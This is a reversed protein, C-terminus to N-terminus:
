NSPSDFLRDLGHQKTIVGTQLLSARQGRMNQKSNRNGFRRGSLRLSSFRRRHRVVAGDPRALSPNFHHRVTPNLHTSITEVDPSTETRRVNASGRPMLQQRGVGSSNEAVIAEAVARSDKPRRGESIADTSSGALINRSSPQQVTCGRITVNMSAEEM